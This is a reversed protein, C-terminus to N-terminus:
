GQSVIYDNKGQNKVTYMLRDAQRLIEDVSAPPKDFSIAGLSFSVPFDKDQMVKQLTSKLKRVVIEAAQQNTEPLFIAFEDGGM